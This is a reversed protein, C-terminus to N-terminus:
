RRRFIKIFRPTYIGGVKPLSPTVCLQSSHDDMTLKSENLVSVPSHHNEPKNNNVQSPFLNLCQDTTSNTNTLSVAWLQPSPTTHLYNNVTDVHTSSVTTFHHNSKHQPPTVRSNRDMPPTSRETDHDSSSPTWTSESCLTYGTTNAHAIATFQKFQCPTPM